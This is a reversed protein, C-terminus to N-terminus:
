VGDCRPKTIKEMLIEYKEEFRKINLEMKKQNSPLDAATARNLDILRLLCNHAALYCIASLLIKENFSEWAIWYSIFVGNNDSPIATVNDSKTVTIRGTIADNVSIHCEQKAHNSDIYYGTIDSASSLNAQGYVFGDFDYDALNNYKTRVIKNTGNFLVGYEPDCMPEEGHHFEYVEELTEEMSEMAIEAIDEDSISVKTIGSYKRIKRIIDYRFLFLSSREKTITGDTDISKYTIDYAGYKASSTFDYKHSYRGTTGHTMIVNNLLITGDPAILTVYSDSVDSLIGSNILHTEIDFVCTEDREYVEHSFKEEIKFIQTM